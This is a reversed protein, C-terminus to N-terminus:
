SRERLRHADAGWDDLVAVTDAGVPRGGPWRVTTSSRSFRPVPAAMAVPGIGEVVPRVIAQRAAFHEDNVIDNADYVKSAPVGMKACEELLAAATWALTEATIIADLEEAHHGRATHSAFEQRETLDLRGLLNALRRFTADSNAAILVEVGDATPYVNSPAIGPLAGGTRTRVSNHIEYEAITSEMLAFVSEYLAVDVVQGCGTREAVRLASLAGITAFLATIEDGLSIGCRASPQDPWGTLHRLGGIAEGISGFGPEQSRPGDQGFGSVRVVVVKPNCALIEAPGIGWREITGPRFNELVIDAQSALGLFVTAGEKSALDLEILRKNRSISPWWLDGKGFDRWRRMPDGGGPPEVKVVDAGLDGLQQGAFPGAIFTGIELVRVGHLPPVNVKTLDSHQGNGQTTGFRQSTPGTCDTTM